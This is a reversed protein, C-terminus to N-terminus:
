VSRLRAALDDAVKRLAAVLEPRDPDLRSAPASISLAAVADPGPQVPVALCRVGLEEEEDDVAWGRDRV